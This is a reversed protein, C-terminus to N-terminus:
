SGCYSIKLPLKKAPCTKNINTNIQTVWRRFCLFSLIDFTTDDRIEPVHHHKQTKIWCVDMLSDYCTIIEFWFWYILQTILQNTHLRDIFSPVVFLNRKFNKNRFNLFCKCYVPRCKWTLAFHGSSVCNRRYQIVFLCRMRLICILRAFWSISTLKLKCM